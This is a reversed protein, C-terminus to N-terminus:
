WPRSDSVELTLHGDWDLKPQQEPKLRVQGGSKLRSNRVNVTFTRTVFSGHATEVKELMLRRSEARITTASPGNRDGLTVTVDYNGEPVDVTFFFPIGGTCFDDRLADGGGRDVASLGSSASFGYGLQKTYTTSPLIRIYGPAAEGSGFDFKYPIAAAARANQEASSGTAPALGITASASILLYLLIREFTRPVM